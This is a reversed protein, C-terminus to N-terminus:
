SLAARAKRIETKVRSRLAQNRLRRERSKRLQKKASRSKPVWVRRNDTM